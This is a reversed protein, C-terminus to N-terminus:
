HAPKAPKIKGPMLAQGDFYRNFFIPDAFQVQVIVMIGPELNKIIGRITKAERNYEVTDATQMIFEHLRRWRVQVVTDNDEDGSYTIDVTIHDKGPNLEVGGPVALDPGKDYRSSAPPIKVVSEKLKDQVQRKVQDPMAGKERVIPRAYYFTMVTMLVAAILVIVLVIIRVM